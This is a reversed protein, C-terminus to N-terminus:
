EAVACILFVKKIYFLFSTFGFYHLQVVPVSLTTEVGEVTETTLELASVSSSSLSILLVTPRTAVLGTRSPTDLPTCSVQLGGARRTPWSLFLKLAAEPTARLSYFPLAPGPSVKPLGHIGRAM